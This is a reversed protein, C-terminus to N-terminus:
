HQPARGNDIHALGSRRLDLRIELALSPLVFQNLRCSAIAECGDLHNIVIQPAGGTALHCAGPKLAQYCAQTRSRHSSDEAEFGGAEGAVPTVPVVNKLKTAQDLRPHDIGVPDIIRAM